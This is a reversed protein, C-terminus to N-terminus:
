EVEVTLRMSPHIGCFAEYTGAEPFPITVSEKPEQAGSNYDLKPHFIRVNHTRTDDNLVTLKQGAKLRVHDPTFLKGLQGVVSADAPLPPPAPKGGTVWPEDSPQPPTESSLTELFAVLDAREEDTLILPMPLDKSRTPRNVGGGEYFRVVDELSALAGNHMYPATWALERLSPTKFAHNAATLEIERGRGLDDDPLGIDYFNHDSLSFGVHCAICRAKGAFLRFGRVEAASLADAKGAIWADFRTPPSVLTREYAAIAKAIAAPSVVGSEPFAEAFARVYGADHALHQAVAELSSGMEDPHELPFRVQAELGPARGDWLV